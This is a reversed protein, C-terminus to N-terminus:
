MKVLSQYTGIMLQGTKKKKNEGHIQQIEIEPDLEKLGYDLFDDTGQLVLNTNPVIMLFKKVGKVQRLFGFVIFSILTKGSSTAIESTSLRFKIIKWASEVQYDRPKFERNKFFEDCWKKVDELKLDDDIVRELGEIQVDLKYKASVKLVESWLGVPIKWIPSQKNIFNIAGDWVKKKVLPHFHHNKIKKTLSIDLQKKEVEDDYHTMALWKNDSTLILRVM